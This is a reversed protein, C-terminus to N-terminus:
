GLTDEGTLGLSCKLDSHNSSPDEASYSGSGTHPMGPPLRLKQKQSSSLDTACNPANNIGSSTGPARSSIHSYEREESSQIVAFQGGAKGATTQLVTHAACLSTLLLRQPERTRWPM